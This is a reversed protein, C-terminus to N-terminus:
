RIGEGLIKVGNVGLDNNGLNLYLKRLVKLKGFMDRIAVGYGEINNNSNSNNDFLDLSLNELKSLLGINNCLDTVGDWSIYNWCM